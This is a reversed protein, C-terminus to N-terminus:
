VRYEVTDGNPFSAQPAPQLITVEPPTTRTPDAPVPDPDPAFCNPLEGQSLAALLVFILCTGWCVPVLLVSVILLVVLIITLLVAVLVVLIVCLWVNCCLCWWLCSQATCSAITRAAWGWLAVLRTAWESVLQYM